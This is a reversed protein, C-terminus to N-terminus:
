DFYETGTTRELHTHGRILARNYRLPRRPRATEEQAPRM